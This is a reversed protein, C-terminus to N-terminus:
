RKRIPDLEKIDSVIMYKTKSNYTYEIIAKGEFNNIPCVDPSPEVPNSAKAVPYKYTAVIAFKDIDILSNIEEDIVNQGLYKKLNFEIFRGNKANGKVDAGRHGPITKQVSASIMSIKKCDPSLASICFVAVLFIILIKLNRM